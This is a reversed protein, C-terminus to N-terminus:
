VPFSIENNKSGVVSYASSLSAPGWKFYFVASVTKCWICSLQESSAAHWLYFVTYKPEFFFEQSLTGQFDVMDLFNRSWFHKLWMNCVSSFSWTFIATNKGAGKKKKKRQCGSNAMQGRTFDILVLWGCSHFKYNDLCMLEFLVILMSWFNKM